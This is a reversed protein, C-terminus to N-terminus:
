VQRKGWLGQRQPIGTATSNSSVCCLSLVSSRVQYSNPNFASKGLSHLSADAMWFTALRGTLAIRKLMTSVLMFNHRKWLSTFLCCTRRTRPLSSVTLTPRAHYLVKTLVMMTLTNLYSTGPAAIPPTECPM